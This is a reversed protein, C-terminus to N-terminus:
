KAIMNQHLYTFYLTFKYLAYELLDRIRQICKTMLIECFIYTKLQHLMYPTTNIFNIICAKCIDLSQFTECIILLLNISSKKHATRFLIFASLNYFKKQAVQLAQQNSVNSNYSNTTSNFCTSMTPQIQWDFSIIDPAPKPESRSLSVADNTFKARRPETLLPVRFVRTSSRMLSDTWPMHGTPWNSEM